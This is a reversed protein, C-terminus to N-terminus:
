SGARTARGRSTAFGACLLVAFVFADSQGYYLAVNVPWFFLVTVSCFGFVLPLQWARLRPAQDAVFIVVGGVFAAIELATWVHWLHVPATAHVFPALLLPITPPYVFSGFPNSRWPSRRAAVDRAAQLWIKFDPGIDNGVNYRRHALLITVAIAAAWLSSVLLTGRRSTVLGLQARISAGTGPHGRGSGRSM